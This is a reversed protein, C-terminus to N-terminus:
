LLTDIDIVLANAPPAFTTTQTEETVRSTLKMKFEGKNRAHVTLDMTAQRDEITFSGTTRLVSTDDITQQLRVTGTVKGQETVRLGFVFSQADLGNLLERVAVDGRQDGLKASDITLVSTGNEKTFRTDGMVARLEKAQQLTREYFDIDPEIMGNAASMYLMEGVSSVPSELLKNVLEKSGFLDKFGIKNFRYWANQSLASVGNPVPLQDRMSMLLSVLGPSRVYLTDEDYNFIMQVQLDGLTAASKELLGVTQEDLGLKEKQQGLLSFLGTLNMKLEANYNIGHNVIAISADIPYTKNGDLTDFATWSGSLTTATRYTKDASVPKQATLVRGLTTFDQNLQGILAERDIVVATEYAADWYVDYGLAQAFARVPIYAAGGQEYVPAPLQVARFAGDKEDTMMKGGIPFSLTRGDKRITITQGEAAYDLVAGMAQATARVPAYTAENAYGPQAGQYTIVKGNLQVNVAGCRLGMAKCKRAHEEASLQDTWRQQALSWAADADSTEGMAEEYEARSNFGWDSWFDGGKQVFSLEKAFYDALKQYEADTLAQAKETDEAQWDYDARLYVYEECFEQQSTYGLQQWMPPKTDAAFATLTMSWVMALTLLMSLFRKKM